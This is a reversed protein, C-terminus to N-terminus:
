DLGKCDAQIQIHKLPHVCLECTLLHTFSILFNHIKDYITYAMFIYTAQKEFNYKYKKKTCHM